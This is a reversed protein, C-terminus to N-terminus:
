EYEILNKFFENRSLLQHYNGEDVIKGDILVYIKDCSILSKLKHSIIILSSVNTHKHINDFIKNETVSDLANSGEDIVLIAPKKILARAFALRQKQGGSLKSANEGIQYNFGKNKTDLFDNLLSKNVADTLDDDNFKQGFLINEKISDDLFFLDQSIHGIQSQLISFNTNQTVKNNIKITGTTPKLLGLIINILTSKGAGTKGVIGIKENKKITLDVYKLINKDSGRYKFSVKELEISEFEENYKIINSLESVDNEPRLDYITNLTKSFFRMRLVSSFILQLSPILKFGAVGFLLLIPMLNEINNEVSISVVIILVLGGYIVSEIVHKSIVTISSQRAVINGWKITEKKFRDVFYRESISLKIEKIGGLLESLFSFRKTDIELRLKGLTTSLKNTLIYSFAYGLVFICLSIMTIFPNFLLLVLFLGFVLFFKIFVDSLPQLYNFVMLQVESVINKLIESSNSNIFFEYDNKSYQDLLRYSITTNCYSLFNVTLKYLLYSLFNAVTLLLFVFIGSIVIFDNYSSLNLYNYSFNLFKNNIILTHDMALSMFPVISSIAIAQLTAILISFLILFLLKSKEKNNLIQLMKKIDYFFSM